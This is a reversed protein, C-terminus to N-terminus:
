ESYFGEITASYKQTVFFRKLKQTPGLFSFQNVRVAMNIINAAVVHYQILISYSM